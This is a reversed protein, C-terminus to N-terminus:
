QVGEAAEEELKCIIADVEDIMSELDSVLTELDENLLNSPEGYSIDKRLGNLRVLLQSIDKSVKGDKALQVAIDVKNAHTKKWSIGFAEALAVVVNEYAYFVSSVCSEPEAPEWSDTAASDWQKQARDLSDRANTLNM